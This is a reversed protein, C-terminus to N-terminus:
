GAGMEMSAGGSGDFSQGCAGGSPTRCAYAFTWGDSTPNYGRVAEEDYSSSADLVLKANVQWDVTSSGAAGNIAAVVKGALPKVTVVDESQLDGRRAVAQISKGGRTTTITGAPLHLM